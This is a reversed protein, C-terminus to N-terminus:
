GHFYSCLVVAILAALGGALQAVQHGARISQPTPLPSPPASTAIGCGGGYRGLSYEGTKELTVGLLGAMAAMPWGANPSECQSCDRWAVRWGDRASSCGIVNVTALCLLLATIRAPALNLLDDLRASPKGFWEYKGHYGIRSDLTNVVRYGWAGLPGFAIYFCFPAVFGDSLNEALSELTGAALESANLNSPDRSCLWSLQARAENIQRRELFKAMQLALTCLLQLSTASKVVAVELLWVVFNTVIEVRRGNEAAWRSAASIQVFWAALANAANQMVWITTLSVFVTSILIAWGGTFGLVPNTFTRNPCKSVIFSIWSGVLCVPHICLPLEGLCRDWAIVAIIVSAYHCLLRATLAMFALVVAGCGITLVSAPAWPVPMNPNAPISPRACRLLLMNVIRRKWQLWIYFYYNGHLHHINTLISERTAERVAQGVMEAFITHKGAHQVRQQRCCRRRHHGSSNRNSSRNRNNGNTTTTTTNSSNATACILVLVDTGTGQALQINNNSGLATSSSSSSKACVVGLEACAACKAEVAVAYAEVLASTDLVANTIVITNVTGPPRPPPPRTTTRAANWRSAKNNLRRHLHHQHNGPTKQQDSKKKDTTSPSSHKDNDDENNNSDNDDDDCFLFYDADAGAARANSLGATVIADVVVDDIGEVDDSTASHVSPVRRSATKLTRMSAATLLGITSEPDMKLGLGYPEQQQQEQVLRRTLQEPNPHLGDYDAPVQANLV